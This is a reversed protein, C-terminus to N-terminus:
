PPLLRDRRIAAELLHAVFQHGRANWHGDGTITMAEPAYGEGGEIDV